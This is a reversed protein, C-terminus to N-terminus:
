GRAVEATAQARRTVIVLMTKTKGTHPSRIEAGSTVGTSLIV